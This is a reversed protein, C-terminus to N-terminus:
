FLRIRDKTDFHEIGEWKKLKGVILYTFPTVVAEYLVKFMWGWLSLKILLENQLVGGFAVFAFVFTDVFQGAVTSSITRVWLLKGKTFLKLRSMIISNTLEGLLYAILSGLVLRPLLAHVTAFEKQFPWGEAPPLKIAVWLVGVMFANALFGLYIIRRTRRFGYVETLIDGFIYCIPFVLIGATFTAPGLDFLKSSAINSILLSAVFIIAVVDIYKPTWEDASQVIRVQSPDERLNM